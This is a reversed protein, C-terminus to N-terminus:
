LNHIVTCSPFCFATQWKLRITEILYIEECLEYSLQSAGLSFCLLRHTVYLGYFGSYGGPQLALCSSATDGSGLLHFRGGLAPIRPAQTTPVSAVSSTCSCVTGASRFIATLGTTGCLVIFCFLTARLQLSPLPIWILEFVSIVKMDLGRARKRLEWLSIVANRCNICAGFKLKGQIKERERRGWILIM